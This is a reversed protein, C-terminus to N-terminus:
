PKTSKILIKTFITFKGHLGREEDIFLDARSPDSQIQLQKIGGRM